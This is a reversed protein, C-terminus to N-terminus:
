AETRFGNVAFCVNKNLTKFFTKIKAVNARNNEQVLLRDNVLLEGHKGFGQVHIMMEEVDERITPFIYDFALTPIVYQKTENNDPRHSIEKKIIVNVNEKTVICSFTTSKTLDPDFANAECVNLSFITESKYSEQRTQVFNQISFAEM